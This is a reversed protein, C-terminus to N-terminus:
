KYDIKASHRLRTQTKSMSYKSFSRTSSHCGALNMLSRRQRLDGVWPSYSISIHQYFCNSADISFIFLVHPYMRYTLNGFMYSFCYKQSGLSNQLSNLTNIGVNACIIFCNSVLQWQTGYPVIYHRHIFNLIYNRLATHFLRIGWYVFYSHINM